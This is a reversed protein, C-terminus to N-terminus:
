YIWIANSGIALWIGHSQSQNLMIKIDVELISHTMQSIRGCEFEGELYSVWAMDSLEGVYFFAYVSM